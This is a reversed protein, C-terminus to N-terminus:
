HAAPVAPTTPASVLPTADQERWGNLSGVIATACLVFAVGFFLVLFIRQRTLNPKDTKQDM